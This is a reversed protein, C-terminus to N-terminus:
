IILPKKEKEVLPTYSEHNLGAEKAMKQADSWSDVEVGAINPRLKPGVKEKQKLALKESVKLHHRKEKWNITDTGGRFIFGSTNPTFLREMGSGCDCKYDPNELMSHVYEKVEGCSNCKYDYAPM